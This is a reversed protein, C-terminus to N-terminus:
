QVTSGFNGACWVADDFYSPARDLHFHFPVHHHWAVFRCLTRAHHMNSTLRITNNSSTLMVSGDSAFAVAHCRVHSSTPEPFLCGKKSADWFRREAVGGTLFATSDPSFAVCFLEDFHEFAASSGTEIHWLKCQKDKGVSLFSVSDPAISLGYVPGSHGDFTRLCEYRLPQDSHPVVSFMKVSRDDSGSLLFEGEASFAVARVDALHHRIVIHECDFSGNAGIIAPSGNVGRKAVYLLLFGAACGAAFMTGSPAFALAHVPAVPTEVIGVSSKSTVDWLQVCRDDGASLVQQQKPSFAVANVAFNGMFVVIPQRTVSDWVKVSKDVSGSAFQANDASFSLSTVLKTHAIIEHDPIPTAFAEILPFKSAFISSATASAVVPQRSMSPVSMNTNQSTGFIPEWPANHQTMNSFALKSINNNAFQM